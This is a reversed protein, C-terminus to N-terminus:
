GAKRGQCNRKSACLGAALLKRRTGLWGYQQLVKRDAQRIKEMKQKANTKGRKGASLGAGAAPSHDFDGCINRWMGIGFATWWKIKGAIFHFKGTIPGYRHETQACKKPDVLHRYQQPAAAKSHKIEFIQCSGASPDFVVMDFEGVPFQLVFVQEQPNAMATELLVIDELHEQIEAVHSHGLAVIQEEKNRIELLRRLNETVAPLDIQDLIDTPEKRDRRLNSASIGLDHSQFDRMLVELTFRHNIDEVVRQIASTLEGQDYLDKLHWFHGGYQYCQLSHQINHAIATDVYEDASARSAFTSTGNYPVGGLSM